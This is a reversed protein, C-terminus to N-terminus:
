DIQTGTSDFVNQKGSITDDIYPTEARKMREGPVNIYSIVIGNIKGNVYPLECFRALSLSIALCCLLVM